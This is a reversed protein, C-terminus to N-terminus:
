MLAATTANLFSYYYCHLQKLALIPKTNKWFLFLVSFFATSTGSQFATHNQLSTDTFDWSHGNRSVVQSGTIQPNIGFHDSYIGSTNEKSNVTHRSPLFILITCTGGQRWNSRTCHKQFGSGPSLSGAYYNCIRATIWCSCTLFEDPRTPTLAFM